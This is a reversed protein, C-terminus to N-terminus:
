CDNEVISEFQGIISTIFDGHNSFNLRKIKVLVLSDTRIVKTKDNRNILSNKEYTIMDAPHYDFNENKIHKLPITISFFGYAIGSIHSPSIYAVKCVLIEGMKPKFVLAKFVINLLFSGSPENEPIYGIKSKIELKHFSLWVGYFEAVYHFLFCSLYQSVSSEINSLSSPLLQVSGSVRLLEFCANEHSELYRFGKRIAKLQESALKIIDQSVKSSGYTNDISMSYTSDIKELSRMCKGVIHYATKNSISSSELINWPIQYM